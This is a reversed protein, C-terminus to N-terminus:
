KGELTLNFGRRCRWAHGSAGSYEHQARIRRIPFHCHDM